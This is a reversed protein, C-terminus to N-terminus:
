LHPRRKVENIGAVMIRYRGGGTGSLIGVDVLFSLAADFDLSPSRVWGGASSRAATATTVPCPLSNRYMATYVGRSVKM